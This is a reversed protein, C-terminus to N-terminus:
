HGHGEHGTSARGEPLRRWAPHDLDGQALIMAYLFPAIPASQRGNIVVLPTGELGYSWAYEVDQRLKAETKPDAACAKLAAQSTQSAEGAIRFVTEPTDLDRQAQFLATRAKDYGPKGEMCVMARAAACRVGTGDTMKPDLKSNCEADLPFWRSEQSFADESTMRRLEDSAAALQACHGCRIDSFDVIRVKADAPGHHLDRVPFQATVPKPAARHGALANAVAQQAAPNLEALFRGLPTSPPAVQAPASPAPRAPAPTTQKSKAAKAAQQLAERNADVPTRTGPFLVLLYGALVFAASWMLPATGKHAGLPKSTPQKFALVGFAVVFVYTTLCTLCYTGMSMSLGFLALSTGIGAAGFIRAVMGPLDAERGELRRRLMWVASATAGLAWVIGWGAVPVRSIRQVSKALPHAWVSACDFTENLSCFTEGSAQALLLEMWQVVGLVVTLGAVVLLALPWGAGKTSFLREGSGAM